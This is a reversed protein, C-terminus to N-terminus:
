VLSFKLGEFTIKTQFSIDYDKLNYYFFLRSKEDGDEDKVPINRIYLKGKIKDYEMEPEFNDEVGAVDWFVLQFSELIDEDFSQGSVYPGITVNQFEITLETNHIDGELDLYFYAPIDPAILINVAFSQDYYDADAIFEDNLRQNLLDTNYQYAYFLMKVNEKTEITVPTYDLQARGMGSIFWAFVAGFSLLLAVTLTIASIILKKSMTVIDRDM